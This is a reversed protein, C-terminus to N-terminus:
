WYSGSLGSEKLHGKTLKSFFRTPTRIKIAVKAKITACKHVLKDSASLTHSLKTATIFGAALREGNPSVFVQSASFMGIQAEVVNSM